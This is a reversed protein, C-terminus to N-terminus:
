RWLSCFHERLLDWSERTPFDDDNQSNFSDAILLLTDRWQEATMEGPVGVINKAMARCGGEIVHCLYADLDSVDYWSYGRMARQWLTTIESWYVDPTLWHKWWRSCWRRWPNVIPHLMSGSLM